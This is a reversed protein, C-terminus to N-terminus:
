LESLPRKFVLVQSGLGINLYFNGCNDLVRLYSPKMKDSTFNAVTGIVESVYKFLFKPQELESCDQWGLKVSTIRVKAEGKVVSESNVAFVFYAGGREVIDVLKASRDSFTLADV